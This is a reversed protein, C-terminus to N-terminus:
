EARCIEGTGNRRYPARRWGGQSFSLAEAVARQYAVREKPNPNDQICRCLRAM